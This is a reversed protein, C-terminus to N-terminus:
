RKGKPKPTYGVATLSLAAKMKQADDTFKVGDVGAASNVDAVDRVALTKSAYSSVLKDQLQRVEGWNRLM